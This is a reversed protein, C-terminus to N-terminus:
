VLMKLLLKAKKWRIRRNSILYTFYIQGAKEFLFYVGLCNGGFFISNHLLHFLWGNGAWLYLLPVNCYCSIASQVKTDLFISQKVTKDSLLLNRKCVYYYERCNVLDIGYRQFFCWYNCPDAGYWCSFLVTFRISGM